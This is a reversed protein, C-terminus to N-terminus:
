DGGARTLLDRRLRYAAIWIGGFVAGLLFMAPVICGTALFALQGVSGAAFGWSRRQLGALVVLVAALGLTATLNLGTLGGNQAVTRPVLLLTLAELALTAAYVGGMAKSVRARDATEDAGAGHVPGTM